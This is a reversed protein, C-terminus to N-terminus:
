LLSKKSIACLAKFRENSKVKDFVEDQFYEDFDIGKEFARELNKFSDEYNNKILDIEALIICADGDNSNLEIAKSFDEVVKNYEKLGFYALGRDKYGLFKQSDFKIAFSYAEIAENYQEKNLFTTGKNVINMYKKDKTKSSM